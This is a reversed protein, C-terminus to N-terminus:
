DSLQLLVRHVFRRGARRASRDPKLVLAHLLRKFQQERRVRDSLQRQLGRKSLHRNAFEDRFEYRCYHILVEEWRHEVVDTRGSRITIAPYRSVPGLEPAATTVTLGLLLEACAAKERKQLGSM